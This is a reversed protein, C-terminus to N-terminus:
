LRRCTKNMFYQFGFRMFPRLNFKDKWMGVGLDTVGYISINEAIFKNLGIELNVAGSAFETSKDDSLVSVGAWSAGRLLLQMNKTIPQYFRMEPAIGVYFRNDKQYFVDLSSGILWKNTLFYGISPTLSVSQYDSRLAGEFGFTVNSKKLYKDALLKPSSKDTNLFLKIRFAPTFALKRFADKQVPQKDDKEKFEYYYQYNWDAELAINKTLFYDIGLSNNISVYTFTRESLINNGFAFSSRNDQTKLLEGSVSFNYYANFAHNQYFYYRFFPSIEYSQRNSKESSFGFINSNSDEERRSMSIQLKAGLALRNTVFYGIKPEFDAWIGEYHTIEDIDGYIRSTGFGATGGLMWSGKKIQAAANFASILCLFVLSKKM